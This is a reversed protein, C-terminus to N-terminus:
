SSKEILMSIFKYGMVHRVNIVYITFTDIYQM